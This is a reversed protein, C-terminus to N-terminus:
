LHEAQLQDTDVEKSGDLVQCKPFQNCARVDDRELHNDELFVYCTHKKRVEQLYPKRLQWPHNLYVPFRLWLPM